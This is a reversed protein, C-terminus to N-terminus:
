QPGAFPILRICGRPVHSTSTSVLFWDDMEQTIYDLEDLYRYGLSTSLFRLLTDAAERFRM